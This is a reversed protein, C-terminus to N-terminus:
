FISLKNKILPIVKKLNIPSIQCIKAIKRMNWKKLYNDQSIFLCYLYVMAITITYPKRGFYEGKLLLMFRQIKMEEKSSINLYNCVRGIYFIPNDQNLEKNTTINTFDLLNELKRINQINCNTYYSMHQPTIGIENARASIYIAFIALDKRPYNQSHKDKLLKMYKIISEDTINNIIPNNACIDQILEIWKNENNENNLMPLEENIIDTEPYYVGTVLGCDTCITSGEISDDLLNVHKCQELNLLKKSSNCLTKLSPTSLKKVNSELLQTPVRQLYSLPVEMKIGLIEEVSSIQM